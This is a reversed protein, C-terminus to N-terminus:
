HRIAQHWHTLHVSKLLSDPIPVALASVIIFWDAPNTYTPSGWSAPDSGNFAFISGIQLNSGQSRYLISFYVCSWIASFFNTLRDWADNDCDIIVFQDILHSPQFLFFLSLPFKQLFILVCRFFIAFRPFIFYTKIIIAFNNIYLWVVFLMKYRFCYFSFNILLYWIFWAFIACYIIFLYWNIHLCILHSICTFLFIIFFALFAWYLFIFLRQFHISWLDM